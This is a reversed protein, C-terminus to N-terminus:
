VTKVEDGTKITLQQDSKTYAGGGVGHNISQFCSTCSLVTVSTGTGYQTPHAHRSIGDLAERPQKILHLSESLM